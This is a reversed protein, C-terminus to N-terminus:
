KKSALPGTKPILKRRQTPAQTLISQEIAEIPAPAPPSTQREAEKKKTRSEKVQLANLRKWEQKIPDNEDLDIWDKRAWRSAIKDTEKSPGSLQAYYLDYRRDIYQRELQAKTEPRKEALLEDLRTPELEPQRLVPMREPLGSGKVPLGVSEEPEEEQSYFVEEAEQKESVMPQEPPVLDIGDLKQETPPQNAQLPQDVFPTTPFTQPEGRIVKTMDPSPRISPMAFPFRFPAQPSVRSMAGQFVGMTPPKLPETESRRLPQSPLPNTYARILNGLMPTISPAPPPLPAEQPAMPAEQPVALPSPPATSAISPPESPPESPPASPAQVPQAGFVRGALPQAPQVYAPQGVFEQRRDSVAGVNTPRAVQQPQPQQLYSPVSYAGFLQPPISPYYQPPPYYSPPPPPGRPPQPPPGGSAPKKAPARRRSARKKQEGINITVKQRVDQKVSQKQRQKQKQKPPM